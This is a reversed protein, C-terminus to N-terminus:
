ATSRAFWRDGPAASSRDDGDVRGAARAAGLVVSMGLVAILSVPRDGRGCSAAPTTTM